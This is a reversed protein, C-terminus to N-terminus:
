NSLDYPVRFGNRNLWDIAATPEDTQIITAGREVWFGYTEGPQNALTALEDGRGGSLMGGPKNAIAYTNVWLHWDGRSAVARARIDFLPGGRDTMPADAQHWNILEAANAAFASTAVELFSADKVADDAMIPMFVVDEGTRELVSKMQRIREANWLNAKVVLQDAMGMERAVAVIRPLMDLDLKNDINVFIRDKTVALMERLSPIHEDTAKGTGEIVLRCQQLQSLTREALVGKCTSSRDLWSDHFVVFEGDKSLQVDLEVMEVGLEISATVAAISNEPYRTRQAEVGGGRHAVVMVHDRWRNANELRERIQAIRTTEAHLASSSVTALLGVVAALLVKRV